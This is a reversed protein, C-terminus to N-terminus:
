DRLLHGRVRTGMDHGQEPAVSLLPAVNCSDKHMCASSKVTITMLIQMEKSQILSHAIVCDLGGVSIILATTCCFRGSQSKFCSSGGYLCDLYGDFNKLVAFDRISTVATIKCPVAGHFVVRCDHIMHTSTTGDACSGTLM